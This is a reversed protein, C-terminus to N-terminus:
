SFCNALSPISINSSQPILIGMSSVSSLHGLTFHIFTSIIHHLLYRPISLHPPSLLCCHPTDTYAVPPLQPDPSLLFRFPHFYNIPHLFVLVPIPCLSLLFFLHLLVMCFKHVNLHLPPFLTLLHM